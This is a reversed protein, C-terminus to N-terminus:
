KFIINLHLCIQTASGRVVGVEDAVHFLRLLGVWMSTITFPTKALGSKELHLQSNVSSGDYVLVFDFMEQTEFIAFLLRIKTGPETVINWRYDFLNPYSTPYNPSKITRSSGEIIETIPTITIVNWQAIPRSNSAVTPRSFMIMMQHDISYLIDSTPQSSSVEGDYLVLGTLKDLELQQVDKTMTLQEQEDNTTM